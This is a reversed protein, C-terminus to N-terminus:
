FPVSNDDQVYRKWVEESANLERLTEAPTQGCPKWYHYKPDSDYPVILEGDDTIYPKTFKAGKPPVPIAVECCAAVLSKVQDQSYQNVALGTLNSEALLAGLQKYDIIFDTQM